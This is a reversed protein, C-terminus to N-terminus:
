KKKKEHTMMGRKETDFELAYFKKKEISFEFKFHFLYLFNPNMKVSSNFVLSYKNPRYSFFVFIIFPCLGNLLFVEPKRLVASALHEECSVFAIHAYAEKDGKNRPLHGRLHASARSMRYERLMTKFCQRVCWM